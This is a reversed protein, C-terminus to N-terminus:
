PETSSFVLEEGCLSFFLNQLEHISKIDVIWNVNLIFYFRCENFMDNKLRLKQGKSQPSLFGYKDEIFGLKKINEITLPIADITHIGYQGSNEKFNIMPHPYQNYFAIYGSVQKIREGYYVYNGIRLENAKIM